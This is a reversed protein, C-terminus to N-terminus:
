PNWRPLYGFYRVEYIKTLLLISSLEASSFAALGAVM